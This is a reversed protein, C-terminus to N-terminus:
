RVSRRLPHQIGPSDFRAVLDDDARSWAALPVSAAPGASSEFRLSLLGARRASREGLLEAPSYVKLFKGRLPHLAVRGKPDSPLGALHFVAKGGLFVDGPLYRSLPERAAYLADMDGFAPATLGLGGSLDVIGVQLDPRLLAVRGLPHDGRRSRLILPMGEELEESFPYFVGQPPLQGSVTLALLSKVKDTRIFEGPMDRTFTGNMIEVFRWPKGGELGVAVRAYSELSRAPLRASPAAPKELPKVAILPLVARSRGTLIAFFQEALLRNGSPSNHGKPLSYPFRRVPELKVADINARGLGHALDVVWQDYHGLVIQAGTDAMRLLLRRYVEDLEGKMDRRYYFPNPLERGRPILCALFAPARRDYRLYRLHPIFSRYAATRNAFTDGVVEILRLGDGELVHRAHLFHITSPSAHDFTTDRPFHFTQPGLLVYDLDFRRAVDNWLTFVQSFGYWGNGFNIVEVQSYGRERFLRQLITPYDESPGVEDGYTFSDGLCGVRVVGAPKKMEHRVFSSDKDAALWGLRLLTQPPVWRVSRIYTRGPLPTWTARLYRWYLAGDVSLLVAGLFLLYLFIRLIRVGSPPRM